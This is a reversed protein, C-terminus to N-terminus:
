ARTWAGRAMRTARAWGCSPGARPGPRRRGSRTNPRGNVEGVVEVGPRRGPGGLPRLAPRREPQQGEHPRRPHGPRHQRGCAGVPRDQRRARHRSDTTDLGLGSENGANPLRTSFRVGIAPRGATESVFRIKTAIVLDEVSTPPRRDRDRPRRAPRGASTITLRDYCGGDIQLEAISSLGFSVGLTPVRVLDGKLGSAPYLIDKQYDVGGELLILGSGITEPDETVLPRQQALAPRPAALAVALGVMGVRTTWTM